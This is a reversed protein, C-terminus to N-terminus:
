GIDAECRFRGLEQAAVFHRSPAMLTVQRQLLFFVPEFREEVEAAPCAGFESRAQV